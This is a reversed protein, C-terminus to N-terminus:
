NTKAFEVVNKIYVECLQFRVVELYLCFSLLSLQIRSLGAARRRDPRILMSHIFLFIILSEVFIYKLINYLNIVRIVEVLM